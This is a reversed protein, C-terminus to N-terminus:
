ADVMLQLGCRCNPHAPPADFVGDFLADIAVEQGNLGDCIPCRQVQARWRKGTAGMKKGAILRGNSFARVSETQAIARRRAPSDVIGELRKTLADRDEGAAISQKISNRIRDKTTDTIDKALPPLHKDLYKQAPADAPNFDIDFKLEQQSMLAGAEMASPVESYLIALLESEDEAWQLEVIVQLDDLQDFQILGIAGFNVRESLGERQKRNFDRLALELRASSKVLLFLADPYRHYIPAFDEIGASLEYVIGAVELQQSLFRELQM